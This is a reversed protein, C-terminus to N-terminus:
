HTLTVLALPKIRVPHFKLLARVKSIDRDDDGDFHMIQDDKIKKDMDLTEDMLRFPNAKGGDGWKTNGCQLSFRWSLM